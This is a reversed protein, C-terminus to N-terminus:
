DDALRVAGLDTSGCVACRGANDQRLADVSTAHYFAQCGGCRVIPKAPDIAASSYADRVGALERRSVIHVTGPRGRPEGGGAGFVDWWKPRPRYTHGSRRPQGLGRLNLVLTVVMALFLLLPLLRAM